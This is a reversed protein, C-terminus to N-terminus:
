WVGRYVTLVLPGRALLEASRVTEGNQNIVENRNNLVGRGRKSSLRKSEIKLNTRLRDGPRVPAVVAAPLSAASRHHEPPKKTSM